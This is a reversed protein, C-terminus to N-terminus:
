NEWETKWGTKWNKQFLRKPSSRLFLTDFYSKSVRIGDIFYTRKYLNGWKSAVERFKM